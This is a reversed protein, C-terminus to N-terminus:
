KKHQRYRRFLLCTAMSVSICLCIESDCVSGDDFDGNLEKSYVEREDRVGRELRKSFSVSLAILRIM